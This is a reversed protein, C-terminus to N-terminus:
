WSWWCRDSRDPDRGRRPHLAPHLRHQRGPLGAEHRAALSPALALARGEGADVLKLANAGPALMIAIGAAPQGNMLSAIAYTEAGLEVRAVDRLRVVAGDPATKLIINRFQEPTQLQSQATVTANLAQGPVPPSAASRGASVQVNQAQVAHQM